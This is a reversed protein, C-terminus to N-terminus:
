CKVSRVISRFDSLGENMEIEDDAHFQICFMVPIKDKCKGKIIETVRGEATHQWFHEAVVEGIEFGLSANEACPVGNYICYSFSCDKVKMANGGINFIVTRNSKANYIYRTGSLKTKITDEGLYWDSPLIFSAGSRYHSIVRQTGDAHTETILTTTRTLYIFASLLLYIVLLLFFFNIMFVIIFMLHNEKFKYTTDHIGCRFFDRSDIEKKIIAKRLIQVSSYGVFLTVLPLGMGLLLAEKLDSTIAYILCTIMLIAILVMAIKLTIIKM